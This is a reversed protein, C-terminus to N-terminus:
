GERDLYEFRYETSVGVPNLMARLNAESYLIPFPSLAEITPVGFFVADGQAEGYKNKARVAFRYATEPDPLTVEAKVAVPSSGSGLESAGPECAVEAGSEFPPKEEEKNQEYR